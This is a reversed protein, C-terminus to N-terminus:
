LIAELFHLSLKSFIDSISNRLRWLLAFGFFMLSVSISVGFALVDQLSFPQVEVTFTIGRNFCPFLTFVEFGWDLHGFKNCPMIALLLKLFILKCPKFSKIYKNHIHCFLGLFHLKLTWFIDFIVLATDEDAKVFLSGLVLGAGVM